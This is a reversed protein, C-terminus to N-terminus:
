RLRGHQVQRVPSARPVPLARPLCAKPQDAADKAQGEGPIDDPGHRLLPVARACEHRRVASDARHGIRLRPRGFLRLALVLRGAPAPRARGAVVAPGTDGVHRAAPEDCRCRARSPVLFLLLLSRRWQWERGQGGRAQWQRRRPWPTSRGAISGTHTENANQSPHRAQRDVLPLVQCLGLLNPHRGPRRERARPYSLGVRPHEERPRDLFIPEAQGDLLACPLQGCGREGARWFPAQPGPLLCVLLRYGM